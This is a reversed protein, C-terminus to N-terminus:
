KLHLFVSLTLLSLSFPAYSLCQVSPSVINSSLWDTVLFDTRYSETYLLHSIGLPSLVMAM